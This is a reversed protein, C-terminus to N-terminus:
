SLAFVATAPRPPTSRSGKLEKWFRAVRSGNSGTSLRHLFHRPPFSPRDFRWSIAMILSGVVSVQPADGGVIRPQFRFFFFFPPFLFFFPSLSYWLWSCVFSNRRWQEVGAVCRRIALNERPISGRRKQERRDYNCQKRPILPLANWFPIIARPNHFIREKERDTFILSHSAINLDKEEEEEKLSRKFYSYLLSLILLPIKPFKYQSSGSIFLLNTFPISFLNTFNIMFFIFPSKLKKKKKSTRNKKYYRNQLLTTLYIFYANDIQPFQYRKNFIDTSVPAFHTWLCALIHFVTLIDKKGYLKRNEELGTNTIQINRWTNPGYGKRRILSRDNRM